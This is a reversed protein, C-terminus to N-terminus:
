RNARCLVMYKQHQGSFNCMEPFLLELKNNFSNANAIRDHYTNRPVFLNAKIKEQLILEFGTKDLTEVINKLFFDKFLLVHDGNRTQSFRKNIENAFNIYQEPNKCFLTCLDDPMKSAIDNLGYPIHKQDLMRLGFYGNGYYPFIVMADYLQKIIDFIAPHFTSSMIHIFVGAKRFLYIAKWNRKQFRILWM